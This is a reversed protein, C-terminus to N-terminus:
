LKALMESDADGADLKDSKVLDGQLAKRLNMEQKKEELVEDELKARFEGTLIEAEFKLEKIVDLCKEQLVTNETDVGIDTFMRERLADSMHKTVLGLLHRGKRPLVEKVTEQSQHQIRLPFYM